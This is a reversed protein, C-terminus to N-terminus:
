IVESIGNEKRVTMIDDFCSDGVLAKHSIFFSTGKCQERILNVFCMEGSADLGDTAEDYIKLNIQKGTISSRLEDLALAAILDARRTMGGGSLSFEAGSATQIDVGYKERLEGNKLLKATAFELKIAGGTLAEAYKLALNNLVPTLEVLRYVRMGLPGYAHELMEYKKVVITGKEVREFVVVADKELKKIEKILEAHRNQASARNEFIQELEYFSTADDKNIGVAALFVILNAEIKDLEEKGTKLIGLLENYRTAREKAKKYAKSLEQKRQSLATEQETRKSTVNEKSVATILRQGCQSCSGAKASKTIEEVSFSVNQIEREMRNVAVYALNDETRLLDREREYTSLSTLTAHHKDWGERIKSIAKVPLPPGYKALEQKKTEIRVQADRFLQVDLQLNVTNDVRQKHIAEYKRNFHETGILEDFLHKYEMDTLQTLRRTSTGQAWMVSRLFMEYTLGLCKVIEDNTADRKGAATLEGGELYVKDGHKSHKRYRDLAYITGNQEWTLGVRCDKGVTRNVVSDGVRKDGTKALREFLAWTIADFANTKGADNADTNQADLNEGKVFVVGRYAM